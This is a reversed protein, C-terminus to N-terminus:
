AAEASAQGARLRRARLLYICLPGVILDVFLHWRTLPHMYGNAISNVTGLFAATLPLLAGWFLVRQSGRLLLVGIVGFSVGFLLAIVLVPSLPFFFPESLHTTTSALMLLGALRRLRLQKAQETM